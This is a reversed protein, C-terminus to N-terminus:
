PELTHVLKGSQIKGLLLGPHDDSSLRDRMKEVTELICDMSKQDCDKGKGQLFENYISGNQDVSAM